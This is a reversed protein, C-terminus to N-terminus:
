GTVVRRRSRKSIAQLGAGVFDSTLLVTLVCPTAAAPEPHTVEVLQIGGRAPFEGGCSWGSRRARALLDDAIRNVVDENFARTNRSHRSTSAGLSKTEVCRASPVYRIQIRAFDPQGTVPCLSSFDHTDLTIWYARQPSRNAFTELM